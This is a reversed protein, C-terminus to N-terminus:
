VLAMHQPPLASFTVWAGSPIALPNYISQCTCHQEGYSASVSLYEILACEENNWIRCCNRNSAKLCPMVARYMGDSLLAVGSSLLHKVRLVMGALPVVGYWFHNQSLVADTGCCLVLRTGFIPVFEGRACTSTVATVENSKCRSIDVTFRARLRSNVYFLPLHSCKWLHFM